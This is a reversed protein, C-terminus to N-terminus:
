RVHVGAIFLVNALFGLALVAVPGEAMRIIRVGTLENAAIIGAVTLTGAGGPLLREASVFAGAILAIATVQEMAGRLSDGVERFTPASDLAMHIRDLLAVELAMVLAGAVAAFLPSPALYAIPFVFTLGIMQSVGTMVSSTAVAPLFGLSIILAVLAAEPLLGRSAASMDLAFWGFLLTRTALALLAGFGALWIVNQRIRAVKSEIGSMSTEDKVRRREARFAFAFLVLIGAAIPLVNPSIAPNAANVLHAVLTVVLVLAGPGIGFQYAVAVAPVVTVAYVLPTLM